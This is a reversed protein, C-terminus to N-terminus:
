SMITFLDLYQIRIENEEREKRQANLLVSNNNINDIRLYDQDIKDENREHLFKNGNNEYINKSRSTREENSNTKEIKTEINGEMKVSTGSVLKEFKLNNEQKNKSNDDINREAEIGVDKIGNNNEKEKMHQQVKVEGEGIIKEKVIKKELYVGRGKTAVGAGGQVEVDAEVEVRREVEIEAKAKAKEVKQEEVM